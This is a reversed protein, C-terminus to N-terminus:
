KPPALPALCLPNPTADCHNPGKFVEGPEPAGWENNPPYAPYGGGFDQLKSTVKIPTPPVGSKPDYKAGPDYDVIWFFDYNTGCWNKSWNNESKDIGLLHRLTEPYKPSDDANRSDDAIRHHEWAMVVIKGDYNTLAENAADKTWQNEWDDKNKYAKDPFKLPVGSWSKAALEITEKTHGTIAYFGAPQEGSVFLSDKAGRGLYQAVLKKSRGEGVSCLGGNDTKEAHRLIIIQKPLGYAATLSLLVGAGAMFVSISRMGVRGKLDLGVAVPRCIADLMAGMNSL